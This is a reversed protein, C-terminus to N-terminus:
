NRVTPSWVEQRVGGLYRGWAVLIAAHVTVFYAAIRIPRWGRMVKPGLLGALGLLYFGYHPVALFRFVWSDLLAAHSVVMVVLFWPVLWRMLKHSFLLFAFMGTRTPDLLRARGFLGTMGRVVTRVKRHFEEGASKTARMTGGADPVTIARCGGEVTRLVSLFDPAVGEPFTGCLRRRQAYFSGSAGVISGVVSEKRRLFMEYRVYLAEGGRGEVREEGSTCGITRDAFPEVLARLSGPELHIAADTFVVIDHVAADLGANLGGAKGSRKALEIVTLYDRGQAFERAIKVTADTSADSVVVCQINGQPYDLQEINRLKEPINVEENYVPLIISVNPLHDSAINGKNDYINALVWLLIPYGAYAYVVGLTSLILAIAM